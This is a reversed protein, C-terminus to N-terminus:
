IFPAIGLDAVVSAIAAQVDGDGWPPGAPLQAAIAAVMNDHWAPAGLRTAAEVAQAQALTLGDIIMTM